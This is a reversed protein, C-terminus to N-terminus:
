RLDLFNGTREVLCVSLIREKREVSRSTHVNPIFRYQDYEVIVRPPIAVQSSFVTQGNFVPRVFM